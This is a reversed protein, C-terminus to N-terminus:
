CYSLRWCMKINEKIIDAHTQCLITFGSQIAWEESVKDHISTRHSATTYTQLNFIIAALMLTLDEGHFSGRHGRYSHFIKAIAHLLKALCSAVRKVTMEQRVAIGPADPM